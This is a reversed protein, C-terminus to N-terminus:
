TQPPSGPQPEQAMSSASNGSEPSLSVGEQEGVPDDKQGVLAATLVVSAWRVMAILGEEEVVRLVLQRAEDKGLGGGELGHRLVGLVDDVRWSGVQMRLLIEQPGADSATQIARLAGLNLTFEHEGGPWTLTISGM